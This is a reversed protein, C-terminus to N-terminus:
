NDLSEDNFEYDGVLIRVSKQRNQYAASRILSGLSSYVSFARSDNIGYSIYFPKEHGEYTMETMSRDIEDRMAKLIIHDQQAFTTQSFALLFVIAYIYPPTIIRKMNNIM